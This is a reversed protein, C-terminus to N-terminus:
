RIIELNLTGEYAVVGEAHNERVLFEKLFKLQEAFFKYKGCFDIASAIMWDKLLIHVKLSHEPSEIADEIKIRPLEQKLQSKLYLLLIDIHNADSFKIGAKSAEFKLQKRLAEEQVAIQSFKLFIRARFVACTVADEIRERGVEIVWHDGNNVDIIEYYTKKVPEEISCTSVVPGSIFGEIKGSEWIGSKAIREM